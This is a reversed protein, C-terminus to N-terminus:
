LSQNAASSRTPMHERQCPWSPWALQHAESRKLLAASGSAAMYSYHNGMINASGRAWGYEILDGNILKGPVTFLDAIGLTDRNQHHLWKSFSGATAWLGGGGTTLPGWPGM